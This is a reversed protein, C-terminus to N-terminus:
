VLYCRSNSLPVQAGNYKGILKQPLQNELYISKLCFWNQRPNIKNICFHTCSVINHILYFMKRSSLRLLAQSSAQMAYCLRQKWQVAPKSQTLLVHMGCSLCETPTSFPFPNVWDVPDLSKDPHLNHQRTWLSSPSFILLCHCSTGQSGYFHM